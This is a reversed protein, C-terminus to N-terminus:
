EAPAAAPTWDAPFPRLRREFLALIEAESRRPAGPLQVFHAALTKKKGLMLLLWVEFFDIRDFVIADHQGYLAQNQAFEVPMETYHMSPKVHHVIHYGDNFCRRNYRSNLCTISNKFDSVPDDPDVFAHQGWNGAMMLTRMVIVPFVFVILTVEFHVWIALAAAFLWYAGEGVILRRVMKERGGRHHYRVLEFLCLTMFRGWYHLWHTFRDRQYPMTTSLDALLNGERHHMGMHHVFYATPTQGFATGVLWPIVDNLAKFRRNFLPRHCTCHLMLTFRDMWTAFVAAYALAFWWTFHGRVALTYLLVAVPWVTLMMAISLNVFVIDRPDNLARAWWKAWASEQNGHAAVIRTETWPVDAAAAPAAGELFSGPLSTTDAM